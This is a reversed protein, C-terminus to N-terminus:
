ELEEARIGDADMRVTLTDLARGTLDDAHALLDAYYRKRRNRRGNETKLVAAKEAMDEYSREIFDVTRDEFNDELAALRASPQPAPLVLVCEAASLNQLQERLLAYRSFYTDPALTTDMLEECDAAIREWQPVGLQAAQILQKWTGAPCLVAQLEEVPMATPNSWRDEEPPTLAAITRGKFGAAVCIVGAAAVVLAVPSVTIGLVGFAIGIGGLLWFSSYSRYWPASPAPRAKYTTPQVVTQAPRRSAAPATRTGTSGGKRRTSGGTSTSYSLGTGPIGVTTTKRGSSHVTYHAGRGGFTVSAGKKGVNIRVGPAIKFSRRFRWGM